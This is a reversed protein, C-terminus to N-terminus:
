SRRSRRLRLATTAVKKGQALAWEERPLFTAVGADEAKSRGKHTRRRDDEAQGDGDLGRHDRARFVVLSTVHSVDARELLDAAFELALDNGQAELRLADADDGLRVACALICGVVPHIHPSGLNPGRPRLAGFIAAVVNRELEVIGGEVSRDVCVEEIVLAAV